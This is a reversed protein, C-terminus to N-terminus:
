AGLVEAVVVDTLPGPGGYGAGAADVSSANWYVPYGLTGDIGRMRYTAGGGGVSGLGGGLATSGYKYHRTIGPGFLPLPDTSDWPIIVDNWGWSDWESGDLEIFNRWLFTENFHKFGDLRFSSEM